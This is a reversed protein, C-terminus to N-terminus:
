PRQNIMQSNTWHGGHVLGWAPRHAHLLYLVSRAIGKAPTPTSLLLHVAEEWPEPRGM